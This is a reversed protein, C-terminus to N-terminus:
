FSNWKTMMRCSFLNMSICYYEKMIQIEDFYHVQNKAIFVIVNDQIDYSKFDVFHKGIGKKFWIVQYFSHIHPQSNHQVNKKQYENLDHVSFQVGGEETNELHYESSEKSVKITM